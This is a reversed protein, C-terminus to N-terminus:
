KVTDDVVIVRCSDTDDNVFSARLIPDKYTLHYIATEEGPEVVVAVPPKASLYRKSAIIESTKKDKVVLIFLVSKVKGAKNGRNIFSDYYEMAGDKFEIKVGNFIINSHERNVALKETQYQRYWDRVEELYAKNMGLVNLQLYGKQMEAEASNGTSNAYCTGVLLLMVICLGTLLRRIKM